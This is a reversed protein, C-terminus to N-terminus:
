ILPLRTIATACESIALPGAKLEVKARVIDLVNAADATAPNPVATRKTPRVTEDMAGAREAARERAVPLIALPLVTGAADARPIAVAREPAAVCAAYEVPLLRVIELASAAAAWCNAPLRAATLPPLKYRNVTAAVVTTIALENRRPAARDDKPAVAASPTLAERAVVRDAVATVAGSDAEVELPVPRVELAVLELDLALAVRCNPWVTTATAALQADTDRRPDARAIAARFEVIAPTADKALEAPM